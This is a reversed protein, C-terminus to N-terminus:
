EKETSLLSVLTETVPKIILTTLQYGSIVLKTGFEGLATSPSLTGM